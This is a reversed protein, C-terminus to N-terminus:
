DALEGATVDFQRLFKEPNKRIGERLYTKNLYERLQNRVVKPDDKRMGLTIKTRQNLLDQYLKKRTKNTEILPEYQKMDTANRSIFISLRRLTEGRQEKSLQDWIQYVPVNSATQFGKLNVPQVKKQKQQKLQIEQLREMFSIGTKPAEKLSQKYVGSLQDIIWIEEKDVKSLALDMEKNIRKLEEGVDPYQKANEIVYEKQYEYNDKIIQRYDDYSLRVSNVQEIFQKQRFDVARSKRGTKVGKRALAHRKSDGHWGRGKRNSSRSKKM